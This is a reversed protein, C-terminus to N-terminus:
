KESQNPGRGHFGDVVRRGIRGGQEVRDLDGRATSPRARVGHEALEERTPTLDRQTSTSGSRAPWGSRDRDRHRWGGAAPHAGASAMTGIMSNLTFWVLSASNTRLGIRALPMAARQEAIRRRRRRLSSGTASDTDVVADPAAPVGVGGGACFVAAGTQQHARGVIDVGGVRPQVRAQYARLVEQLAM